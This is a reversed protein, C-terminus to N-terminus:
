KIKQIQKTVLHMLFQRGREDTIRLNGKECELKAIFTWQVDVELGLQISNTFITVESIKKKSRIDWVEVYERIGDNNPSSYKLSQCIVPEVIPVAGRKSWALPTISLFCLLIAILIKAKM